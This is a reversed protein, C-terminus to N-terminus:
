YSFHLYVAALQRTTLGDLRDDAWKLPSHSWGPILEYVTGDPTLVLGLYSPEYRAPYRSGERDHWEFDYLVDQTDYSPIQHVKTWDVAKRRRRLERRKGFSLKKTVKKHALYGRHALATERDDYAFIPAQGETSLWSQGHERVYDAIAEKCLRLLDRRKHAFLLREIPNEFDRVSSSAAVPRHYYDPRVLEVYHGM